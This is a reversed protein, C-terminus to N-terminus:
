ARRRYRIALSHRRLGRLLQAWDRGRCSVLCTLIRWFQFKVTFMYPTLSLYMSGGALTSIITIPLITM